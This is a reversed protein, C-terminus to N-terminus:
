IISLEPPPSILNLHPKSYEKFYYILNNKEKNLAQYNETIIYESFIVDQDKNKESGKEEEEESIYFCSIDISDDIMVIITPAVTFVLFLISLSISIISRKSM